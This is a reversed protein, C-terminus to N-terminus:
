GGALCGDDDVQRVGSAIVGEIGPDERGVARREVGLVSSLEMVVKEMPLTAAVALALHEVDALGLTLFAELLLTVISEEGRGSVGHRRHAVGDSELLLKIAQWRHYLDDEGVVESHLKLGGCLKPLQEGYALNNVKLCINNLSNSLNM